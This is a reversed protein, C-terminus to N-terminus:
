SVNLIQLSLNVRGKSMAAKGIFSALVALATKAARAKYLVTELYNLRGRSGRDVAVSECALGQRFTAGADSEGPLGALQLPLPPRGSPLVLPAQRWSSKGNALFATTRTRRLAELTGVGWLLGDM